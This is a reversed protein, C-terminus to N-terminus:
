LCKMPIGFTLIKICVNYTLKELLLFIKLFSMQFKGGLLSVNHKNGSGTIKYTENLDVSSMVFQVELFRVMFYSVPIERGWVLFDLKYTQAKFNSCM